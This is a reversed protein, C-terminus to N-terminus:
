LETFICYSKKEVANRFRCICTACCTLMGTEYNECNDYDQNNECDNNFVTLNFVNKWHTYLGVRYM